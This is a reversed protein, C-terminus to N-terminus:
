VCVMVGTCLSPGKKATTLNYRSNDSGGALKAARRDLLLSVLRVEVGGAGGCCFAVVVVGLPVVCTGAVAGGAPGRTLVLSDVSSTEVALVRVVVRCGVASSDVVGTFSVSPVVAGGTM